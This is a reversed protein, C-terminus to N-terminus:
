MRDPRPHHTSAPHCQPALLCLHRPGRVALRHHVTSRSRDDAMRGGSYSHTRTLRTRVPDRPMREHIEDICSFPLCQPSPESGEDVRKAYSVSFGAEVSLRVLDGSRCTDSVYVDEVVTIPGLAVRQTDNDMEFCRLIQNMCAVTECRSSPVKHRCRMSRESVQHLPTSRRPVRRLCHRLRLFGPQYRTRPLWPCAGLRSRSFATRTLCRGLERRSPLAHARSLDPSEPRAVTLHANQRRSLKYSVASPVSDYREPIAM